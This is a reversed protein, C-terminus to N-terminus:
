GNKEALKIERPKPCRPGTHAKKPPQKKVELYTPLEWESCPSSPALQGRALAGSKTGLPFYQMDWGQRWGPLPPEAVVAGEGKGTLCGAAWLLMLCIHSQPGKAVIGRFGPEKMWLIVIIEGVKHPPQSLHLWWPWTSTVTGPAYSKSETHSSDAWRPEKRKLLSRLSNDCPTDSARKGTGRTERAYFDIPFWVSM